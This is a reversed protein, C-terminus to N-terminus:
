IYKGIAQVVNYRYLEHQWIDPSLSRKNTSGDITENPTSVYM